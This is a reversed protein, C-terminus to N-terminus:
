KTSQWDWYGIVNFCTLWRISRATVHNAVSYARRPSGNNEPLAAATSSMPMREQCNKILLGAAISCTGTCRWHFFSKTEIHAIYCIYPSAWTRSPSPAVRPWRAFHRSSRATHCGTSSREVGSSTRWCGRGRVASRSWGSLCCRSERCRWTWVEINTSRM